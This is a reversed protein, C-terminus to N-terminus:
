WSYSSYHYGGSGAKHAGETTFFAVADEAPATASIQVGANDAEAHVYKTEGASNMYECYVKAEIYMPSGAETHASKRSCWGSCSVGNETWNVAYATVGLLMALVFALPLMRVIRRKTLQFGKERVFVFLHRADIKM